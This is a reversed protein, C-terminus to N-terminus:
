LTGDIGSDIRTTHAHYEVTHAAQHRLFSSRRWCFARTHGRGTAPALPAPSQQFQFKSASLARPTPTSMKWDLFQKMAFTSSPVVRIHQFFSILMMLIGAVEHNHILIIHGLM